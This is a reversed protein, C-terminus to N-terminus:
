PLGFRLRPILRLTNGRKRMPNSHCALTASDLSFVFAIPNELGLHREIPRNAVFVTALARPLM